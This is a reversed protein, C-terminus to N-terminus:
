RPPTPPRLLGLTDEVVVVAEEVSPASSLEVFLALYEGFRFRSGPATLKYKDIEM